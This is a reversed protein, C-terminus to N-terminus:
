LDNADLFATIAANVEQPKEIPVFHGADRVHCRVANPINKELFLGYKPPTLRDDEASVILVPVWIQLQKQFPQKGILPLVFRKRPRRPAAAADGSNELGDFDSLAGNDHGPARGGPHSPSDDDPLLDEILATDPSADALKRRGPQLFAPLNMEMKMM